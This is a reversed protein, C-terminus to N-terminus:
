SLQLVGDSQKTKLIPLRLETSFLIGNDTLLADQGYGRVTEQGGIGFQELPLLTRDALQIDGRVILLTDPALLRSWQGQGRWTFFNSDPATDNITADLLGVGFSFQSRAALVEREDRHVWDQFFRIASVRTYGQKDAGPSLPFGGINDIGLKTQSQQHSLTLGLGFEESPRQFLPQRYTLEYYNSNAQIDLANFPPEIVNSGSIGYALRLTGDHPNLPLSRPIDKYPITPIIRQTITPVPSQTIPAPYEPLFEKLIQNPFSDVYEDEWDKIGLETIHPLNSAIQEPPLASISNDALIPQSQVAIAALSLLPFPSLFIRGREGKVHVRKGVIGLEEGQQVAIALLQAIDHLSIGDAKKEQMQMMTQALNIRAEIAIQSKPLAEIQQKLQPLLTKAADTLKTDVLLNLQNLQAQIRTHNNPSSAAAQQYFNLATKPDAQARVTNGLSLKALAVLDPLQLQNAIVLSRELILQAPPLNGV